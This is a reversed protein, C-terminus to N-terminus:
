YVLVSESILKRCFEGFKEARESFCEKTECNKERVVELLYTIGEIPNYIIRNKSFLAVEEGSFDVWPIYKLSVRNNENYMISAFGSKTILVHSEWKKRGRIRHGTAQIKCITSYLVEEGEPLVKTLISYDKPVYINSM